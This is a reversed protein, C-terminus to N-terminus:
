RCIAQGGTCTCTATTRRLVWEGSPNQTKKWGELDFKGLADSPISVEQAGAPIDAYGNRSLEVHLKGCADWWGVGVQHTHFRLALDSGAGLLTVYTNGEANIAAWNDSGDPKPLPSEPGPLPSALAAVRDPLQAAILFSAVMLCAFLPLVLFRSKMHVM